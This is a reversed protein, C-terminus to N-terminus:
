NNYSKGEGADMIITSGSLMNVNSLCITDLMPMLDKSKHMKKAPLRTNIFKKYAKINKKKLRWMANKYGIFGGPMIGTVIIKKKILIRGISRVYSTILSKACNYGVSGVAEYSAISGIHVIKSNKNKLIPIFKNNIEVSSLFNLNILKIFKEYSLFPDKFGLGGGACHIISYLNNFLKDKPKIKSIESPNQLDICLFSHKKKNPLKNILKKLEKENRGVLILSQKKKAFWMAAERGLGKTAGTILIKKM